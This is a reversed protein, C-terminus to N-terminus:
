VKAVSDVRDYIEGEYPEHKIKVRIQRGEISRFSFPAGPSNMGLAERLTRLRGNKGPALDIGGSDNLDLLFGYTLIVSEPYDKLSSTDLKVPIDVGTYTKTPDAKGQNVRVKPTGITGIWDSGAPLPPRKTQVDTITADLFSEADFMSM